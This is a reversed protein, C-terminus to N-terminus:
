STHLFNLCTVVVAYEYKRDPNDRLGGAWEEDSFRFDEFKQGALTLMMRAPEARGRADFYM